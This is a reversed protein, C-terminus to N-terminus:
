RGDDEHMKIEVHGRPTGERRSKEQASMIRVVWSFSCANCAADKRGWGHRRFNTFLYGSASEAKTGKGRIRPIEFAVVTVM